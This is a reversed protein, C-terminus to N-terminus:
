HSACRRFSLATHRVRGTVDEVRAALRHRGMSYASARIRLRLHSRRPLHPIRHGDIKASITVPLPSKADLDVVFRSTHCSRTRLRATLKLPPTKGDRILTVIGGGPANTGANGATAAYVWRDLPDIALARVDILGHATNCATAGSALGGEAICGFTGSLQVLRGRDVRRFISIHNAGGVYLHFGDHSAVAATAGGLTPAVACGDEGSGSTCGDAGNLGTSPQRLRGDTSRRLLAVSDSFHGVAYVTQDDPAVVSTIGLLGRAQDCGAVPGV